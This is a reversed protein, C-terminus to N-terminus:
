DESEDASAPTASADAPIVVVDAPQNVATAQSAVVQWDGGAARVFVDTWRYTGNLAGGHDRGALTTQGTVVATDGHLQAKM